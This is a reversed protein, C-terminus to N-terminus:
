MMNAMVELVFEAILGDNLLMLGGNTHNVLVAWEGEIKNAVYEKMCGEGEIKDEM